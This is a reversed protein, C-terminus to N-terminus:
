DKQGSLRRSPPRLAWSAIVFVLLILPAVIDWVGHGAIGNSIAAGTLNFFMGAYAWEKVRPFRPVIIAIAGLSKWVGLMVAFYLPYGLHGMGDVVDKGLSIYVFGGFAYNASTFATTVWYTIKRIKDLKM